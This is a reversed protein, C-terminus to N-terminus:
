KDDSKSHSMDESSSTDYANVVRQVLPHRAVDRDSFFVMSMGDINRLIEVDFIETEVIATPLIASPTKLFNAAM